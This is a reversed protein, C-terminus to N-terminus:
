LEPKDLPIVFKVRIGPKGQKKQMEVSIGDGWQEKLLEVRQKTLKWGQGLGNSANGNYLGPGNDEVLVILNRENIDFAIDLEGRDGMQSLAHIIANEIHPQIFLPPIDIMDVQIEEDIKISYRFPFRLKELELYTKLTELEEALSIHDRSSQDLIKRVLDGFEALYLNAKEIENGNVLNQISSLSNFLFHPNMRSKVAGLELEAMKRKMALKQERNKSNIKVLLLIIGAILIVALLSVWLLKRKVTEPPDIEFDLQPWSQLNAPPFGGMKSQRITSIRQDKDITFMLDPRDAFYERIRQVSKKDTVYIQNKFKYERISDKNVPEDGIYYLLTKIDKQQNKLFVIISEDNFKPFGPNKQKKPMFYAPTVELLTGALDRINYRKGEFDTFEFRDITTGPLLHSYRCWQEELMNGYESGKYESIFFKYYRESIETYFKEMRAQTLSALVYYRDWGTLLSGATELLDINYTNGYYPLGNITSFATVLRTIFKRYAISNIGNYNNCYRFFNTLSDKQNYDPVDYNRTLIDNLRYKLEEYLVEFEFWKQFDKSYKPKEKEYMERVHQIEELNIKMNMNSFGLVYSNLLVQERWSIGQFEMNQGFKRLDVSFRITDGPMVFFRIQRPDSKYSWFSELDEPFYITVLGPGDPMDGTITLKEGQRNIDYVSENEVLGDSPFRVIAKCSDCGRIDGFIWANQNEGSYGGICRCVTKGELKPQRRIFNIQYSFINNIDLLVGILDHFDIKSAVLSDPRSKESNWFLEGYSSQWNQVEGNVTAAYEQTFLIQSPNKGANSWSNYMELGRDSVDLEFRTDAQNKVLGSMDPFVDNILSLYYMESIRSLIYEYRIKNQMSQRRLKHIKQIVENQFDEIGEILLVKGRSDMEFSFERGQDAYNVLSYATSDFASEFRDPQDGYGQLFKIKSYSSAISMSMKYGRNTVGMVKFDLFKTRQSKIVRNNQIPMVNTLTDIREFVHEFRLTQGKIFKYNFDQSQSNVDPYIFFLLIIITLISKNM